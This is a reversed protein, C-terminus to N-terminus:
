RNAGNTECKGDRTCGVCQGTCGNDSPRLVTFLGFLVAAGIVGVIVTM